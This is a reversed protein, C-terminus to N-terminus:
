GERWRGERYMGILFDNPLYDHRLCVAPTLKRCFDLTRLPDAYFEVPDQKEAWSSITCFGVAVKALDFMRAIMKFAKSEAEEGLLYFIGQALVVDFQQESPMELLDGCHLRLGPHAARGEEIMRASIDIGTYDISNGGERSLLFAGLDGFGCGVDLVRRGRVDAIESLAEYRLLLSRERSLDRAQVSYGHINVLRDFYAAIRDRDPNHFM